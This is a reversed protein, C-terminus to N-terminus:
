LATKLARLLNLAAKPNAPGRVILDRHDPFIQSPKLQAHPPINKVINVISAVAVGMRWNDALTGAPEVSFYHRWRDVATAPLEALQAETHIGLQHM